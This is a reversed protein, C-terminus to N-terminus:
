IKREAMYGILDNPWMMEMWGNGQQGEITAKMPCEFLTILEHVPFPFATIVEASIQTVRGASDTVEASVTRPVLGEHCSFQEVVETVQAMHGDRIVYGCLHPKGLAFLKWFHVGYAEGAQVHVWKWHQNVGWDRTGWSHDRLSLADFEIIKGAKVIRGKIKGQQEFRDDAMWAPCGQPHTSYAYAQHLATFHYEVEVEDSKYRVTATRLAEHLQLSLGGVQWNKFDMTSPVDIGDCVEFIPEAGIAEGFLCLAAGAKGAGNVWTYLFGGIGSVPEQIIFALSERSLESGYLIHRNDHEDALVPVDSTQHTFM